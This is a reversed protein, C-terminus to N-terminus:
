SKKIRRKGYSRRRKTKTTTESEFPIDAETLVIFDVNGRRECFRLAASWKAQNRINQIVDAASKGESLKAEKLPKIEILSTRIRGETTVYTILFDPIYITQKGEPYKFPNATPDRYPIKFPEYSWELCSPNMDCAISAFMEEWNSKLVM